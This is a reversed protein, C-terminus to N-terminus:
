ASGGRGSSRLWGTRKTTEAPMGRASQSSKSRRKPTAIRSHYPATSPPTAKLGIPSPGSPEKPRGSGPM